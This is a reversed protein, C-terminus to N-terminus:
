SDGDEYRKVLEGHRYLGPTKDKFGDLNVPKYCDPCHERESGKVHNVTVLNHCYPCTIRYLRREIVETLIEPDPPLM